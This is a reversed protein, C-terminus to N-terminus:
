IFLVILYYYILFYFSFTSLFSVLMLAHVNSQFISRIEHRSSGSGAIVSQHSDRRLIQGAEGGAGGFVLQGEVHTKLFVGLTLGRPHSPPTATETTNTTPKRLQGQHRFSKQRIPSLQTCERICEFGGGGWGSVSVCLEYKM